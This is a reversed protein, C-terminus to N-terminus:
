IVIGGGFSALVKQEFWAIDFFLSSFPLTNLM